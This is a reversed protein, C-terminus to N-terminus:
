GAERAGRSAWRVPADGATTRVFCAGGKAKIAACFGRAESTSGFGAVSLRHFRGRGKIDVTTSLPERGALSYRKEAEVWAREAQHATKFAGIQVVYRGTAKPKAAVPQLTLRERAPAFKPLPKEAV